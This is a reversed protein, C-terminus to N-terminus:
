GGSPAITVDPFRWKQLDGPDDTLYYDNLSAPEGSPNYIEIWDSYENDEDRRTSENDALFETILPEGPAVM